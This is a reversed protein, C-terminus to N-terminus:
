GKRDLPMVEKGACFFERVRREDAQTLPRGEADPMTVALDYARRQVAQERQAEDFEPLHKATWENETAHLPYDKRLPHGQWDPPLLLRRLDPHHQFTVGFLDFVEREPWNAAPWIGTVSEIGAAETTAVKLRVRRNGTISYLNYVIEFPADTREPLHLCTLDCLYDFPAEADHRLWSCVAVIRPPSIRISLQGLFESAEVVADAIAARLRCVLPHQAADTPQPAEEKKKVPAKPPVNPAAADSTTPTAQQEDAAQKLAAVRVKAEAILRTKREDATEDFPTPADDTSETSNDASANDPPIHPEDTM